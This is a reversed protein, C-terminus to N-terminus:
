LEKAKVMQALKEIDGRIEVHEGNPFIASIGSTQRGDKDWLPVLRAATDTNILCTLGSKIYSSKIWM